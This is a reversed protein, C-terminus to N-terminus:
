QRIGGIRLDKKFSGKGIEYSRFAVQRAKKKDGISSSSCDKRNKYCVKEKFWYKPFYPLNEEVVVWSDRLSEPVRSFIGVIIADEGKMGIVLAPRVKSTQLDTFPFNVLVIDGARYLSM